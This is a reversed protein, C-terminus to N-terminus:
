RRPGRRRGFWRRTDPRDAAFPGDTPRRTSAARGAPTSVRGTVTTTNVRLDTMAADDATITIDGSVSVATIDAPGTAAVRIAGSVSRADVRGQADAVSVHGSTSSATVARTRNLRVDGSVSTAEAEDVAGSVTIAGSETDADLHRASDMRLAGSTSRFRVSELTGTTEVDASVTTARLSSGPPVVAEIHFPEDGGSAAGAGTVRQGDVYVESGPGSTYYHSSSDGDFNNFSVNGSGIQVVNGYGYGSVFGSVSRGGAESRVEWRGGTGDQLVADVDARSGTATFTATRAAESVRVSVSGATLDLDLTIPGPSPASFTREAM